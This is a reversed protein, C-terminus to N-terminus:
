NEEKKHGIISRHTVINIKEGDAIESISDVIEQTQQETLNDISIELNILGRM